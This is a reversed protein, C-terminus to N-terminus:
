PRNTEWRHLALDPQDWSEIVGLYEGLAAGQEAAGAEAEAQLLAFMEPNRDPDIRLGFVPVVVVGDPESM